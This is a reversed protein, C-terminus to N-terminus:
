TGTSGPFTWASNSSRQTGVTGAIQDLEPAIADLARGLRDDNLVEPAIGFCHGVAWERAWDIVRVLPTPSTLRNAIMAEIVQGPQPAALAVDRIPCLGDIIAAVGLQDLFSAVVPLGGLTQQVSPPGYVAAEPM